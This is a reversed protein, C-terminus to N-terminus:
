STWEDEGTDLDLSFRPNSIRLSRALHQQLWADDGDGAVFAATMREVEAPDEPEARCERAVMGVLHAAIRVRFALAPDEIAPVVQKGLFAAVGDLLREKRPEDM